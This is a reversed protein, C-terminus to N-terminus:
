WLRLLSVSHLFDTLVNVSMLMVYALSVFFDFFALLM